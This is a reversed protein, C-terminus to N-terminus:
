GIKNEISLVFSELDEAVKEWTYKNQIIIRGIKGCEKLEERKHYAYDISKAITEPKTSSIYIGCETEGIISKHCPIDTALIVKQMALYELLKLPCQARWFANDPLPIIGIDCMSIFKPVEFQNVPDHIIINNRLNEHRILERLPYIVPGAGLLFFVIDPHEPKLIKIAKAVEILGRDPALVGHYLVVFRKSLGLKAKLEAGQHVYKEPDFLTDSVGTSWVGIRKESLDFQNCVEKKMLPTIISIGDFLRKAMILSASFLFSRIGGRFGGTEVPVSRVDLIVRIKRLKFLLSHPVVALITADPTTVILNPKYAIIYFPLSLFVVLVFFANSIAPVYRLPVPDIRFTPDKIRFDRSRM